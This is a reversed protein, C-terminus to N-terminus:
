QKGGSIWAFLVAEIQFMEPDLPLLFISFTAFWTSVRCMEAQSRCVDIEGINWCGFYTVYRHQVIECHPSIISNEEPIEVKIHPYTHLNQHYVLNLDHSMGSVLKKAKPLNHSKEIQKEMQLIPINVTGVRKPKQLTWIYFNIYTSYKHKSYPKTNSLFKNNNNSDSNTNNLLKPLKM